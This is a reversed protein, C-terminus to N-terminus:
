IRFHLDIHKIRSAEFLTIRKRSRGDKFMAFALTKIVGHRLLVDHLILLLRVLHLDRSELLLLLEVIWHGTPGEVLKLLWGQQQM